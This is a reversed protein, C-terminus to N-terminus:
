IFPQHFVPLLKGVADSLLSVFDHICEIADPLGFRTSVVTPRSTRDREVGQTPEAEWRWSM